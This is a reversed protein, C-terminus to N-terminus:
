LRSVDKAIVILHTDSSLPRGDYDYEIDFEYKGPEFTKTIEAPIYFDYDGPTNTETIQFTAVLADKSNRLQCLQKDASGTDPTNDINKRRVIFSIADGRKFNLTAM